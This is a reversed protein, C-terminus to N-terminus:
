PMPASTPAPALHAAGAHGVDQEEGAARDAHARHVRGRELREVRGERAHVHLLGPVADHVRRDAEVVHHQGLHQPGRKLAIKVM